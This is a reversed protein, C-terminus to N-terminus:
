YHANIEDLTTVPWMCDCGSAVERTYPEWCDTGWRRRTLLLQRSRQVCHFGPYACKQQSHKRIGGDDDSLSYSKCFVEHYHQPQHEYISNDMKVKRTKIECLNRYEPMLNRNDRDLQQLEDQRAENETDYDDEPLYSIDRVVPINRLDYSYYLQPEGRFSEKILQTLNQRKCSVHNIIFFLVIIPINTKGFM